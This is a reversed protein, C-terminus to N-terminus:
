LHIQAGLGLYSARYDFFGNALIFLGISKTKVKFDYGAKLFVSIFIPNFSNYNNVQTNTYVKNMVNGNIEHGNLIDKSILQYSLCPGFDFYITNMFRYEISAQIGARHVNSLIIVDKREIINTGGPDLYSDDYYYHYRGKSFNYNIGLNFRLYPQVTKFSAEASSFFGCYYKPNNNPNSIRIEANGDKVTPSHRYHSISRNAISGISFGFLVNKSTDIQGFSALHCILIFVLGYTM